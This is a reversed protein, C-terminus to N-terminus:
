HLLEVYDNEDHQNKESIEDDELIEDNEAMEDVVINLPNNDMSAVNTDLNDNILLICENHNKIIQYNVKYSVFEYFFVTVISFAYLNYFNMGLM